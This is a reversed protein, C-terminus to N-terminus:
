RERECRLACSICPRVSLLLIKNVYRIFLYSFHEIARELLNKVTFGIAVTYVGREMSTVPPAPKM